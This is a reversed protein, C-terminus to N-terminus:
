AVAFEVRVLENVQEVAYFVFTGAATEALGDVDGDEDPEDDGPDDEVAGFVEPVRGRETESRVVGVLLFEEGEVRGAEM